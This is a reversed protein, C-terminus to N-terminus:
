AAHSKSNQKERLLREAQLWDEEAEGDGGGRAEWLAHALQEIEDHSPANLSADVLRTEQPAVYDSRNVPKKESM